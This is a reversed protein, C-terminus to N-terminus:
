PSPVLDSVTGNECVKLKSSTSDAYIRYDGTGCPISEDTPALSVALQESLISIDDGTHDIWETCENINGLDSIHEADTQVAALCNTFNRFFNGHVFLRTRQSAANTDLVIGYRGVEFYSDTVWLSQQSLGASEVVLGFNWGQVTTMQEGFRSDRVWIKQDSPVESVRLMTQNISLGDEEGVFTCGDIALTSDAPFDGEYTIEVVDMVNLPLVGGEGRQFTAGQCRITLSPAARGLFDNGTVEGITFTEGDTIDVQYRAPSLECVRGPVAVTPVWDDICDHLEALTDVEVVETPAAQAWGPVVLWAALLVVIRDHNWHM